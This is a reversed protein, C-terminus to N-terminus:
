QNVQKVVEMVYKEVTELYKCDGVNFIFCNDKEGLIISPEDSTRILIVTNEDSADECTTVSTNYLNAIEEDLYGSTVNQVFPFARTFQGLLSQGLQMQTCLEAKREVAVTIKKSLSLNTNVPIKNERPDTRFYIHYIRVLEGKYIIPFEGHYFLINSYTMKDFKVGGYEFKNIFQKYVVPVIIFGLIIFIIIGVVWFFQKEVAKNRDPVIIKEEKKKQTKKKKTAM